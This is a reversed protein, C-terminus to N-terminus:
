SFAPAIENRAAEAMGDLGSLLELGVQGALARGFDAHGAPLGILAVRGPRREDQGQVFGFSSLMLWLLVPYFFLPLVLCGLVVGRERLATRAERLYLLRIDYLSM